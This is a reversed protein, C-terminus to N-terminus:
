PVKDFGFGGGEVVVVGKLNRCGSVVALDITCLDYKLIGYLLSSFFDIPHQPAYM